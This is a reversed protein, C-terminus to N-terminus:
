KKIEAVKQALEPTHREITKPTVSNNEAVEARIAKLNWEPHKKAVDLCEAMYAEWRKAKDAPTGHVMEHALKAGGIVKRGRVADKGALLELGKKEGLSVAYRYHALDGIPEWLEFPVYNRVYGQSSDTLRCYADIWEIIQERAFGDGYRGRDLLSNRTQVFRKQHWAPVWNDLLGFVGDYPASERRDAKDQIAQLIALEEVTPPPLDEATLEDKDDIM